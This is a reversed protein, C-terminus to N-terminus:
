ATKKYAGVQLNEQVTLRPFLRRGEPVLSVGLDVIDYPAKGVLNSDVGNSALEITGAEPKVLGAICKLLTSKGNGNTGLLVTTQGKLLELSVGHIIKVSGYGAFLNNTRLIITDNEM